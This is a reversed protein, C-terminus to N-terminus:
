AQWYFYYIADACIDWVFARVIVDKYNINKLAESIIEM